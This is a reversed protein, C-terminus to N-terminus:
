YGGGKFKSVGFEGTLQATAVGVVFGLASATSVEMVSNSQVFEPMKLMFNSNYSFRPIM